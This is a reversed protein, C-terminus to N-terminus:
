QFWPVMVLGQQTKAFANSGSFELYSKACFIGGGFEASNNVFSVTATINLHSLGCVDLGGGIRAFNNIFTLYGALTVTKFIFAEELGLHHINDTTASNNTFSNNGRWSLNSGQAAIGGGAFYASNNLLFVLALGAM